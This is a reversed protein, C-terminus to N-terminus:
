LFFTVGHRCALHLKVVIVLAETEDRRIVALLDKQVCGCKGGTCGHFRARFELESDRVAFAACLGTLPRTRM